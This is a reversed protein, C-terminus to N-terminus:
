GERKQRFIVEELFGEKSRRGSSGASGKDQTIGERLGHSFIRFAPVLDTKGTEWGPKQHRAWVVLYKIPIKAVM